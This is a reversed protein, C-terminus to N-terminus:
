KISTSKIITLELDHIAKEFKGRHHQDESTPSPDLKGFGLKYIQLAEEFRTTAALIKGYHLYVVGQEPDLAVAKKILELAKEPQKQKLRLLALGIHAQQNGPSSQLARRFEEDAEKLKNLNILVLGLKIRTTFDRPRFELLIRYEMEAAADPMSKEVHAQAPHSGFILSLALLASFMSIKM